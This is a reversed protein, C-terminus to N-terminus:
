PEERVEAKCECRVGSNYSQMLRYAYNIDAEPYYLLSGSASHNKESNCRITKVVKWRM